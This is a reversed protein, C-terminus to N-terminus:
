TSKKPSETSSHDVMSFMPEPWRLVGKMMSDYGEPPNQFSLIKPAKECCALMFVDCPNRFQGIQCLLAKNYTSITGITQVFRCQRCQGCQRCQRYQRFQRYVKCDLTQITRMTQMTQVAFFQSFKTLIAFHRWNASNPWFQEIKTLLMFFITLYTVNPWLQPIQIM